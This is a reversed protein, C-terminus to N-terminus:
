VLLKNDWLALVVDMQSNHEKKDIFLEKKVHEWLEKKSLTPNSKLIKVATIAYQKNLKSRTYNGKSIGKILGEECLGLFTSKPCNKERLSKTKFIEKTALIWTEIPNGNKVVAKKATLGYENYRNM